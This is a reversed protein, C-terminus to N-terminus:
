HKIILWKCTKDGKCMRKLSIFKYEPNIAECIGNARAELADACIDQSANAFICETIEKEVREPTQFSLKGKQNAAQNCRDIISAISIADRDKIGLEKSLDLAISMGLARMYPRLIEVAKEKGAFDVLANTAYIWSQSFNASQWYEREEDSWHPIPIEVPKKAVEGWITHGKKKIMVQCFPDGRVLMKSYISEYDSYLISNFARMECETLHCLAESVNANPCYHVDATYGQEFFHYNSLIVGGFLFFYSQFVATSYLDDTKLKFKDKSMRTAADWHFKMYTMILEEARDLGATDALAQYTSWWLDFLFRVGKTLGEQPKKENPEPAM